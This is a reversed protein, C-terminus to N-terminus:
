AGQLDQINILLFPVRDGKSYFIVYHSIIYSRKKRSFRSEFKAWLFVSSKLLTKVCIKHTGRFKDTNNWLTM